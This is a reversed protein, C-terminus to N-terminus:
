IAIWGWAYWYGVNGILNRAWKTPMVRCFWHMFLCSVIQPKSCAHSVPPTQSHIFITEPVSMLNGPFLYFCWQASAVCTFRLWVCVCACIADCLANLIHKKENRKIMGNTGNRKNSNIGFNSCAFTFIPRAFFFWDLGRDLQNFFFIFLSYM